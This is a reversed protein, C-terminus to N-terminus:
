LNNDKRNMKLTQSVNVKSRPKDINTQIDLDNNLIRRSVILYNTIECTRVYPHLPVCLKYWNKKTILSTRLILIKNAYFTNSTFLQAGVCMGWTFNIGLNSDTEWKKWSSNVITPPELSLSHRFAIYQFEWNGTLSLPRTWLEGM